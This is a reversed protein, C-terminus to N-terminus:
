DGARDSVTVREPEEARAGDPEGSPHGPDDRPTAGPEGTAEHTPAVSPGAPGPPAAVAREAALAKMLGWMMIFMIISFPLGAALSATQLAALGGSALLVAAVAGEGLGWFVRYGAPPEEKGMSILTTVVLTGSDSSTVFYTIILVLAIFALVSGLVGLGFNDIVLFLPRAIDENVADIIGGNEEFEQWLATGGFIAMWFFTILTPVVLVGVAFERITRGRSVRAIFMGVFPAWAIWWGWYFITWTGQWGSEPNPDVWLGMPIVNTVYDGVNTIFFGLLFVTPGVVVFVTILLISLWMNLESLMKIGRGVGSVASLTAVCSIVMILVYKVWADMPVGFLHNLGAQIQGAGLGLTTAVGFVTGFVALLDAVHGWTGYIRKGLIPYLAARITLPLGKRYSFYALAMGVIVYVAWGHLGWHLFTVQMATGAGEMSNATGEELFPANQVHYLPESVSWFLLGIGMGAGFLMSFWSFNSFEPRDTDKGLRISGYPSFILFVVFFIFIAISLIYYWALNDNIWTQVWGFIEGVTEPAVVGALVFALIIVKSATAMVPNM